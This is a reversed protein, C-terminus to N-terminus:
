VRSRLLLLLALYLYRQGSGAREEGSPLRRSFPAYPGLPTALEAAPMQRRRLHDLMFWLADGVLSRRIELYALGPQDEAVDLVLGDPFIEVSNQFGSLDGPVLAQRLVDDDRVVQMKDPDAFIADLALRQAM